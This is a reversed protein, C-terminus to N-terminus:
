FTTIFMSNAKGNNIDTKISNKWFKATNYEFGSVYVDDGLVIVSTAAADGVTVGSTLATETKNKWLVGRSGVYGAVYVDNDVFYIANADAGYADASSIQTKVGNKWYNVTYYAGNHVYGAVYVDNGVVHIASISSANPVNIQVGNKWYVGINKIGDYITGAIYVDNGVVQIAEAWSINTSLTTEVLGNKWYVANNNNRGVIHVDNGVVQIAEASGFSGQQLNVVVGNKWAIAFDNGNSSSTGTGAVYIDNNQVFISNAVVNSASNSLYTAVGNKWYKARHTAGTFESGVLYIDKIVPSVKAVKVTVIYNIFSGNSATVKYSVPNTFNQAIGSNPNISAGLFNISPKLNTIDTGNPVKLEITNGTIIGTVDDTLSPNDASSFIFSTISKDNTLPMRVTVTYVKKSNDDATVTYLVPQTFNKSVTTDPDILKGNHVISPILATINTNAPLSIEINEGNIVGFVDSSLSANKLKSFSFSLISNTSAANSTSEKKCGNLTVFAFILLFSKFIYKNM